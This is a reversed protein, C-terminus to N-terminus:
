VSNPIHEWNKDEDFVALFHTEMKGDKSKLRIEYWPVGEKDIETIVLPKKRRSLKEFVEATDKAVYPLQCPGIIKIKDGVKLDAAKM